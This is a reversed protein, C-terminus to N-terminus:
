DCILERRKCGPEQSIGRTQITTKNRKARGTIDKWSDALDPLWSFPWIAWLEPSILLLLLCHASEPYSLLSPQPPRLPASLYLCSVALYWLFWTSVSVKKYSLHYLIQRCHLLDPNSGQILFSWQLLFHCGVATNKGPSDCPCSGPPSCDMPDCSDSIVLHIVCLCLM